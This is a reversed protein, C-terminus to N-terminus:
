PFCPFVALALTAAALREEYITSLILYFIGMSRRVSFCASRHPYKKISDPVNLEHFCMMAVNQFGLDTRAFKAPFAANLDDTMTFIVHSIDGIEINNLNIMKSLLEITAEKIAEPSNEDVTIAGRIGKTTM